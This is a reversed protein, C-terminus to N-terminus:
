ETSPLPLAAQQMNNHAVATRLVIIQNTFWDVKHGDLTIDVAATVTTGRGEIGVALAAEGVHLYRGRKSQHSRERQV